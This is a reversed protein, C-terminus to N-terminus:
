DELVFGDKDFNVVSGESFMRYEPLGNGAGGSAVLNQPAALTGSQVKGDKYFSIPTGGKFEVLHPKFAIGVSSKTALWATALRQDAALTGCKPREANGNM